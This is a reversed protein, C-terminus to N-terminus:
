SRRLEATPPSRAIRPCRRCSSRRRRRRLPTPTAAADVHRRRRTPTPTPLPPRRDDAATTTTPPPRDAAAVTPLGAVDIDAADDHDTPSTRDRVAVAAHDGVVSISTPTRRRSATPRRHRRSRPGPAVRGGPLGPMAPPPAGRRCRRTPTRPRRGEGDARQWQTSWNRNRSLTM